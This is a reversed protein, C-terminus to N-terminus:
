FHRDTVNKDKKDYIILWEWCKKSLIRTPM